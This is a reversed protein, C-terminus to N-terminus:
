YTTRKQFILLYIDSEPVFNEKTMEFQTPSIKKVNEGCFSVFNNPNGKDVVLRFHKIPGSWNTGTKLIYDIYKEYYNKPNAKRITNILNNELCYTHQYKSLYENQLTKDFDLFNTVFAGVSPKYQHEIVIEKNAPFTQDWYYNTQLDWNPKIHKEMGHGVDYEEVTVIGLKLLKDKEVQPLNDLDHSTSTLYSALPINLKKLLESYDVGNVLAKQEIQAKVPQGNVKTEFGLYNDSTNVPIVVNENEFNAKIVPIPFVVVTKVDNPSKNFFVYHVKIKDQSIFLDESKMEVDVNKTFVLGGAALQASSDNAFSLSTFFLCLILLLM